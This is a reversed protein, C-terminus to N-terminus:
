QNFLGGLRTWNRLEVAGRVHRHDSTADRATGTGQREGLRSERTRSRSARSTAPPALPRLPPKASRAACRGVGHEPSSRRHASPQGDPTPGLGLEGRERRHGPRREDSPPRRSAASSSSRSSSRSSYSARRPHPNRLPTARHVAARRELAAIRGREEVRRVADELRRPQHAPSARGRPRPRRRSGHACGGQGRHIARPASVTTTRSRRSDSRGERRARPGSRERSTALHDRGLRDRLHQELDGVVSPVAEVVPVLPQVSPDHCAAEAVDGEVGLEGVSSTM